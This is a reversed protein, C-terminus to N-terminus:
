CHLYNSLEPLLQQGANNMSLASSPFANGHATPACMNHVWLGLEGVFYTHFDEVEINYVTTRFTRYDNPDPENQYYDMVTYHRGDQITAGNIREDGSKTQYCDIQGDFVVSFCSGEDIALDFRTTILGVNPEGPTQYVSL